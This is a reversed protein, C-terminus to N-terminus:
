PDTDVRLTDVLHQARATQLRADDVSERSQELEHVATAAQRRVFRLEDERRSLDARLQEIRSELDRVQATLDGAVGALRHETDRASAEDATAAALLARAEALMEARQAAATDDTTSDDTSPTSEAGTGAPAAPEPVVFMGSPGFGSYQAATVLRGRRLDDLVEDDAVAARLTQGVERLANDSLRAGHGSSSDAISSRAAAVLEQRRASLTRLRDAASKRQADTLQRALDALADVEDPHTRSWRNIASAVQTPRRLKSVAQALPRDGQARAAKVFENRRAVFETEAGGYLEDIIESLTSDDVPMRRHYTTAM